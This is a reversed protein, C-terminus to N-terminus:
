IGTEKSTDSSTDSNNKTEAFHKVMTLENGFNTVSQYDIKDMTKNMIYFGRGREQHIPVTDNILGSKLRHLITNLSKGKDRITIVFCSNPIIYFALDIVHHKEFNYAHEVINSLAEDVALEIDNTIEETIKEERLLGTLFLRVHNLYNINSPIKLTFKYKNIAEQTKDSKKLLTIHGQKNIYFIQECKPCRLIDAQPVWSIQKCFPCESKFPFQILKSASSKEKLAQKEAILAEKATEKTPFLKIIKEIGAMNFVKKIKDSVKIILINGQNEKITGIFEIFVGIGTSSLYSIKEFDAIINYFKDNVLNDFEKRLQPTTSTDIFGELALTALQEDENLQEIKRQVNLISM